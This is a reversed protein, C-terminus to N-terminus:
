KALHKYILIKCCIKRYFHYKSVKKYFYFNYTHTYSIALVLYLMALIPTHIAIKEILNFYDGNEKPANM